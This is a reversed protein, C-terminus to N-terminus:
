PYRMHWQLLLPISPPFTTSMMTRGAGGVGATARAPLVGNKQSVSRVFKGAARIPRAPRRGVFHLSQRRSRMSKEVLSSFDGAGAEPSRPSLFNFDLHTPFSLTYTTYLSRVTESRAHLLWMAHSIPAFRKPVRCTYSYTFCIVTLSTIPTNTTTQRHLLARNTEPIDVEAVEVLVLVVVSEFSQPVWRVSKIKVRM